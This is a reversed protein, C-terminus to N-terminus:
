PSWRSRCEKGVRREESREKAPIDMEPLGHKKNIYDVCHVALTTKGEGVGGDLVILAAKNMRFIRDDLTDLNWALVESFPLENM